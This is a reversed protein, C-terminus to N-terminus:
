VELSGVARLVGVDWEGSRSGEPRARLEFRARSSGSLFLNVGGCFDGLFVSDCIDGMRRSVRSYETRRLAKRMARAVETGFAALMLFRGEPESLSVDKKFAGVPRVRDGNLRARLSDGSRSRSDESSASKVGGLFDERSVTACM